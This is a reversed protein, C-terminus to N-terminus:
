YEIGHKKLLGIVYLFDLRGYSSGENIENEFPNRQWVWDCNQGGLPYYSVDENYSVQFTKFYEIGKDLKPSAIQSNDLAFLWLWLNWKNKSLINYIASVTTKICDGTVSENKYYREWGEHNIICLAMIAINDSFWARRWKVWPSAYGLLYKYGCKNYLYDFEEWKEAVSLAALIVAASGGHLIIGPAFNGHVPTKNNLQRLRYGDKIIQDVLSLFRPHIKGTKKKYESVAHVMGMLQDGSPDDRVAYSSNGVGRLLYLSTFLGATNGIIFSNLYSEFLSTDNRVNILYGAFLGSFLCSDGNDIKIRKTRTTTKKYNYIGTIPYDVLLDIDRRYKIELENFQEKTVNSNVAKYEPFPFWLSIKDLLWLIPVKVFLILLKNASPPLRVMGIKYGLKELKTM